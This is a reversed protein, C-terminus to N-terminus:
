TRCNKMVYKVQFSNLTVFSIMKFFLIMLVVIWLYGIKLVLNETIHLTKKPYRPALSISCPKHAQVTSLVRALARPSDRRVSACVM